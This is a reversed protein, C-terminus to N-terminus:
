VKMLPVWLGEMREPVQSIRACSGGLFRSLANGSSIDARRRKGDHHCVDHETVTERLHRNRTVM